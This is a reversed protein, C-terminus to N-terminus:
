VPKQAESMESQVREIEQRTIGLRELVALLLSALSKDPRRRHALEEFPKAEDAYSTTPLMEIAAQIDVMMRASDADHERYFQLLKHLLYQRRGAGSTQYLKRGAVIQFVMRTARNACRVRMDREDVKLAKWQEYKAQYDFNCAFLCDAIRMWAARLRKNASRALPGDARDVKDSQYRSPYLGARGSVARANPYNEIAGMEAALDGATVVNLGHASLLLVYPTRVLLSAMEVENENIKQSLRVRHEDLENWIRHLRAHLPDPKAAVRAWAEIRLLTRRQFRVSEQRLRTALGDIGVAVLAEPHDFWRPLQLGIHSDWLDDKDFLQAYGPLFQEMYGRMQIQLRSRQEVLNRRHRSLLQLQNYIEGSPIEQLGFGAAAAQFIAELDHDDTKLNPHMLRRYHHSAFPHVLRTDWHADRFARQIPRHYTGTMEVAVITDLLGAKSVAEQVAEVAAKLGVSNHEVVTPPVIVKGYFNCLMWKSRAKACDVAVIGFRDPGVKEVRPQIVGKPCRVYLKPRQGQKRSRQKTRASSM